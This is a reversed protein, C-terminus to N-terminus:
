NVDQIIAIRWSTGSPRTDFMQLDNRSLLSGETNVTTASSVAAITPSNRANRPMQSAVFNSWGNNSAAADNAIPSTRAKVATNRAYSVRVNNTPSVADLSTTSLIFDIMSDSGSVRATSRGM